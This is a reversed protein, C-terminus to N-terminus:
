REKLDSQKEKCDECMNALREANETLNNRIEQLQELDSLQSRKQENLIGVRSFYTQKVTVFLIQFPYIPLM